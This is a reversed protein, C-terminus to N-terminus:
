RITINREANNTSTSAGGIKLNLDLDAAALGDGKGVLWDSVDLRGVKLREVLCDGGRGAFSDVTFTRIQAGSGGDIWVRDYPTEDSVVLPIEGRTSGVVIDDTTTVTLTISNGDAENDEVVAYFAEIDQLTLNPCAGNRLIFEDVETYSGANATIFLTTTAGGSPPGANVGSIDVVDIVAGAINVRLTQTETKPATQSPFEYTGPAPYVAFEPPPNLQDYVALGSVFSVAGVVAVALWTRPNSIHSIM